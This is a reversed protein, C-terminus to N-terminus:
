LTLVGFVVGAITMVVSAAFLFPISFRQHDALGVGALGILLFTAPTLPSVPFGTTMQGLLAGQAVQIQSAGASEGVSALVPLVGFYFSDPDFLMSLPMSLFGLIVPLHAAAEGPALGAGAVAMADLMGTGKMIGTFAGAAFLIAAMMLAAKAHSDVAQRQADVNPFNFSLALVAGLMFAVVPHALGSVMAAITLVTITLNAAFRLASPGQGAVGAAGAVGPARAGAAAPERALRRKEQAGLYAASMFVFALGTLHLPVLPGYLAMIDMDLAGAARITPGGWPLMNNVGAAMAVACALVRRDMGLQDYLPRLAPVAILFTSAGSGDLHVVSALAVTGVVIRPPSDGVLKLIGDIFPRFLGADSMVGFFVIAFVFMAATPAVNKVGDVIFASIEFGFGAALAAIVPVVILAVLPSLWKNLIVALLVAISALGIAALAADSELGFFSM